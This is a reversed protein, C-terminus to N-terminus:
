TWGPEQRLAELIEVAKKVNAQTCELADLKDLCDGIDNWSEKGARLAEERQRARQVESYVLSNFAQVKRFGKRMRVIVDCLVVVPDLRSINRCCLGMSCVYVATLATGITKRFLFASCSTGELRMCGSTLGVSVTAANYICFIAACLLSLLVQEHLRSQVSISWCGLALQRPYSPLSAACSRDSTLLAFARPLFYCMHPICCVVACDLGGLPANGSGIEYYLFRCGEDQLKLLAAKHRGDFTGRLPVRSGEVEVLPDIAEQGDLKFVAVIAIGRDIQPGTLQVPNMQLQESKAQFDGLRRQWAACCVSAIEDSRSSLNLDGARVALLDARGQPVGLLHALKSIADTAKLPFGPCSREWRDIRVVLRLADKARSQCVERALRDVIAQFQEMAQEARGLAQVTAAMFSAFEGKLETTRSQLDDDYYWIVKLCVVLMTLYTVLGIIEMACLPPGVLLIGFKGCQGQSMRSLWMLTWASSFAFSIYICVHVVDRPWYLDIFFDWGEGVLSKICSRCRSASDIAEPAEGVGMEVDPSGRARPLLEAFM